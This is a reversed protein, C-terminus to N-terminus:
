ADNTGPKMPIPSMGSAPPEHNMWRSRPKERAKSHITDFRRSLASSASPQPRTESTRGASRNSSPTPESGPVRRQRRTAAIVFCSKSCACVADSSSCSASSAASWCAAVPVSSKTSPTCANRSFRARTPRGSVATPSERPRSGCPPSGNRITVPPTSTGRPAVIRSLRRSASSRSSWTRLSEHVLRAAVGVHVAAEDDLGVVTAGVEADDEEM